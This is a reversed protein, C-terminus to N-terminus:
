TVPLPGLSEEPLVTVITKRKSDYVVPFWRSQHKVFWRTVRNSQRDVFRANNTKGNSSNRITLALTWYSQQNLVIGYREFGRRKAHIRQAVTKSSM